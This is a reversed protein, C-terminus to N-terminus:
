RSQALLWEPLEPEDYAREWSEHGVGPYETYRVDAGAAQLADAMVRSESVPIVDDAGGHFIWTPVDALIRAAAGHPDAPDGGARVLAEPAADLGGCIPVLAAFRAPVDLALRWSGYGGMSIGTLYQRRADARCDLLVADLAALAQQLMPGRWGLRDRSQPLVALMPWREPHTRLAPGLGVRLQREGDDGREGAGHLFLVIPWQREASWGPPRWLQYRYAVDGVVAVRQEFAGGGARGIAGDM